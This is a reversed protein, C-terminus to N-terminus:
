AVKVASQTGFVKHATSLGYRLFGEAVALRPDDMMGVHPWKQKLPEYVFRAGGGALIIGDLASADRDFLADAKALIKQTIPTVAQDVLSSVDLIKGFHKIKGTILAQTLIVDSVKIQRAAMLHGLAGLCNGIGETSDFSKAIVRGEAVMIFDTTYHGVEVVAWDLLQENSGYAKGPIPVGKQSMIHAFYAGSPQPLVKINANIAERTIEALRTRQDDYVAAPSGIILYAQDLNSVGQSEIKKVAAAVLALYEPKTIWEDSMGVLTGHGGQQRATLGTFYQQGRVTVTDQEAALATEEHAIPHALCVNSPFIFSARQGNHQFAVKVASRGIDLGIIPPLNTQTM